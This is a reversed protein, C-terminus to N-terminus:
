STVQVFDLWSGFTLRVGIGFYLDVPICQAESVAM